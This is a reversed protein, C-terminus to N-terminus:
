ESRDSGVVDKKTAIARTRLEREIVIVMGRLKALLAELDKTHHEKLTQRETKGM